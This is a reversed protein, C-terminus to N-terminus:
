SPAQSFTPQWRKFTRARTPSHYLVGPCARLVHTDYCVCCKSATSDTSVVRTVSPRGETITGTKDVALAKLKGVAELFAGGEILVGRRAISISHSVM